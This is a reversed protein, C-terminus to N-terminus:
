TDVTAVAENSSTWTVAQNTANAPTVTAILVEDAGGVALNLVEKNLSVGTVAVSALSVNVSASATFTGDVTTVTITAQGAGVATVNGNTDVTAVAENSSTWTVAQNTANAPTVTANLSKAADGVTMNLESKNLSVGTVAVSALSVNVSASATFAGDVTTVTITAQGAGVATVNGTADVTAVAENSSTWTVAQNTANAPAVTANLAKAEDGVVMNLESKNLSVGTVAVNALYVNVTATATQAGDDTTVTITAQGAGVPTVNGNADVTAVSENSSTWKVSQTTANAPAVTAVLAEAAGGVTMNLVDKNLTVGTVPVTTTIKTMERSDRVRIRNGQAYKGSMGTVQLTDGVQLQPPQVGSENVIYGDVFVLVEGSGDNIVYSSADPMSTVTGKVQVLQGQYKETVAEGTSLQKPAVPDGSSIKVISNDFKDFMLEKDNEFTGIHGYIRVIDGLKLSGAPVDSFSMIGGTEDQVYAADYFVGGATTVKGQVVVNTNDPLNRADGISVVKPEIHSLWNVTSLEFPINNTPGDNQTMQKDNFINMGAVLIRGNGLQESAVLPITSGGTVDSLAPGTKGNSTKVNYVATDAKVQPSDQFTSENGHALITVTDSNTLPVKNGNGDNKALSAGSYFDLMSVFDTLANGVPALHLRVSFNSTLPNSWFNGSATEDFVGDNNVLISSGIGSLLSNLNQTMGGFNSKDTLLLSGGNNVFTKLVAIESASYQTSPHTVVLVKVDSLLQDSLTTKNEVVTYGQQKLTLSFTKMNDTYTGTDATTNENNHTADIMVKIGLPAKVTITQEFKNNGLDNGDGAQLVVMIKHDGAIPNSWVVSADASKNSALSAINADGILHQADISDYYFHATLNSVNITGQNAIGAKLTIPIGAVAAGEVINMGNVTVALPDAPTWIPASYIRDGDKQTVRVVFWQQGGMVTFSPKWNFASENGTPTYTDVVRGGNTILEVKQVADSTNPTTGTINFNLSKSDVTAGMYYGNALVDLQFQPDESFYVHMKKMADLLSEQSLDKAVIVTRKKTQGWTADHNDEGYTPAVHWGLDLASFFKTEANAYSYHGSGNGVELMTFLKDVNKDYPIFNDFANASMAPHNFQAVINDYTLTWAYYNQLNQYKGGDQIRDIFNTTGFVNSHGWTTSTIEFAPFVVFKGDKTYAKAM